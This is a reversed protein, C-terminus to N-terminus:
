WGYRGFVGVSVCVDIVVVVGMVVFELDSMKFTAIGTFTLLLYLLVHCGARVYECTLSHRHSHTLTVHTFSHTFTLIYTCTSQLCHQELAAGWEEM